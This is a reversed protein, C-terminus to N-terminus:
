PIQHSDSTNFIEKLKQYMAANQENATIAARLADREKTIRLVTEKLGEVRVDPEVNDNLSLEQEYLDISHADLQQEWKHLAAGPKAGGLGLTFAIGNQIEQLEHGTIHGIYNTLRSTDINTVQNCVAISQQNNACVPVHTVNTHRRKSSTLYVIQVVGSRKNITDNSVVVGPRGSWMENGISGGGPVPAAEVFWVDGQRIDRM